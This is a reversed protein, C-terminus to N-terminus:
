RRPGPFATRIPPFTHDNGRVCAWLPSLSLFLLSHEFVFVFIGSHLWGLFSLSSFVDECFAVMNLPHREDGHPQMGKWVARLEVICLRAFFLGMLIEQQQHFNHDFGPQLSTKLGEFYHRVRSGLFVVSIVEEAAGTLLRLRLSCRLACSRASPEHDALTATGTDSDRYRVVRRM